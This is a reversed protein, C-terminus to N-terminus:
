VPVQVSSCVSICVLKCAFVQFYESNFGDPPSSEISVGDRSCVDLNVSVSRHASSALVCM